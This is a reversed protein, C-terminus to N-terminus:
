TPTSDARAPPPGAGRLNAVNQLLDFWFPAGLSVAFATLLFGLGKHALFWMWACFDHPSTDTGWGIPLPLAALITGADRAQKLPAAIDGAAPAANGGTGSTPASTASPPVPQPQDKLYNTAALTVVDRAGKDHWLTDAVQLVDINVIVALVLGIVLLTYQAYRKYVGGARDMADDYWTQLRTRFTDLDGKAEVIFAQLTRKVPSGDPLLAIAREVQSGVALTEDHGQRLTEVLATAFNGAPIYSPLKASGALKSLWGPLNPTALGVVLPHGIVRDSLSPATAPVAAPGAGPAAATQQDLIQKLMDQLVKGRMSLMSAIIEQIASAITSLLVFVLALGLAVDLMIGLSM